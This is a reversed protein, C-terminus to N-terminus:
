EKLLAGKQRRDSGGTKRTTMIQIPLYAAVTYKFINGTVRTTKKRLGVAGGIQFLGNFNYCRWQLYGQILITKQLNKLYLILLDLIM